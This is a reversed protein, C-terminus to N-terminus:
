AKFVKGDDLIVKYWARDFTDNEAEPVTHVYRQIRTRTSAVDIKM